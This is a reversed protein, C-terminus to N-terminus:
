NVDVMADHMLTRKFRVSGFIFQITKDDNREVTWNEMQNNEKIVQNIHTFVDGVLSAFTEYMLIQLQEEFAILNNTEKILEYIRTIIKDM